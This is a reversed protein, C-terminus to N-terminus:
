NDPLRYGSLAMTGPVQLFELATETV